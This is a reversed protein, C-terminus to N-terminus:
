RSLQCRGYGRIMSIIRGDSQLEIAHHSHQVEDTPRHPQDEHADVDVVKQSQLEPDAENGENTQQRQLQHYQQSLKVGM